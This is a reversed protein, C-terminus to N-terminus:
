DPCLFTGSVVDDDQLPNLPEAFPDRSQPEEGQTSTGVVSVTSRRRNQVTPLREETFLETSSELRAKAVCQRQARVSQMQSSSGTASERAPRRMVDRAECTCILL